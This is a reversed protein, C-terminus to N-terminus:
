RGYFACFHGVHVAYGEDQRMQSFVPGFGGGSQKQPKQETSSQTQSDSQEIAIRKHTTVSCADVFFSRVRWGPALADVNQIYSKM